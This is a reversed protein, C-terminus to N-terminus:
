TVRLYGAAEVIDVLVSPVGDHQQRKGHQVEAHKPSMRNTNM